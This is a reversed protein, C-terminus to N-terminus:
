FPIDREAERLLRRRDQADPIADSVVRWFAPSHNMESLHALEHVAIYNILAPELMMVRWNFRLAGDTSCSGWRRKQNRVLIRIRSRDGRGLKPWWSDVIEPLRRAAREAYWGIFARYVLERVSAADVSAADNSDDDAPPADVLFRWRYLRVRPSPASSEDAPKWVIEHSRGLYSASQGHTFREQPSPSPPKALQESIWDTRSLIFEYISANPFTWPASVVVIGDVVKLEISKKRRKSRRVEYEVVVGGIQVSRYNPLNPM